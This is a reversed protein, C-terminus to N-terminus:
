RRQVLVKGHFSFVLTGEQNHGENISEVLGWGPKSALERKRTVKCLYSLTDGPYVPRLWRLHAFGPSPGAQPLERGAESLRGRAADNTAVYRNMWAAATHWGSAALRGFPGAAAAADDVHFPQPDYARAFALIDERTFHYSGLSVELGVSIDEYFLGLM